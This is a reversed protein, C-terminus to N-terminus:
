SLTTEVSPSDLSSEQNIVPNLLYSTSPSDISSEESIVPPMKYSLEPSDLSSEQNIAPNLLYSLEPSDLSSEANIVPHVVLKYTPADIGITEADLGERAVVLPSVDDLRSEPYLYPITPKALSVEDIKSEIDIYKHIPKPKARAPPPHGLFSYLILLMTVGSKLKKNLDEIDEPILRRLIESAM